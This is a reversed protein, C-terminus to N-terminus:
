PRWGERDHGCFANLCCGVCVALSWIGMADSARGRWMERPKRGRLNAYAPGGTHAAGGDHPRCGCVKVFATKVAGFNSKRKEGLLPLLDSMVGHRNRALVLSSSLM